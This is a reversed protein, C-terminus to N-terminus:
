QEPAPCARGRAPPGRYHAVAVVACPATAQGSRELISRAATEPDPERHALAIMEEIEGSRWARSSCLVITDDIAVTLSQAEIEPPLGCIASTVFHGGPPEEMKGEKAALVAFTQESTLRETGRASVRYVRSDGVHAVSLKEGFSRVCALTGYAATASSFTRRDGHYLPQMEDHVRRILDSPAVGRRVPASAPDLARRMENVVFSGAGQGGHGELLAFYSFALGAAVWVDAHGSRAVGIQWRPDLNYKPDLVPPGGRERGDDDDNWEHENFDMEMATAVELARRLSWRGPDPQSRVEAIEGTADSWWLGGGCRRALAKAVLGLQEYSRGGCSVEAVWGFSPDPERVVKRWDEPEARRPATIQVGGVEVVDSPNMDLSPETRTFVLADVSM